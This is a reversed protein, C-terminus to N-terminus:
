VLSARVVAAPAQDGAGRVPGAALVVALRGADERGRLPAGMEEVARAHRGHGKPADNLFPASDCLPTPARAFHPQAQLAASAPLTDDGVESDILRSRGKGNERPFRQKL